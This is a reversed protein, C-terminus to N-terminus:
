QTRTPPAIEITNRRADTGNVPAPEVVVFEIHPIVVTGDEAVPLQVSQAVKGDIRDAIFQIAWQDGEEAQGIVKRAIKRLTKQGEEGGALIEMWLAKDFARATRSTKKAREQVEPTNMLAVNQPRGPNGRYRAM